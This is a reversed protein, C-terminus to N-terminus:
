SSCCFAGAEFSNFIDFLPKLLGFVLKFACLSFTVVFGSRAKSEACYGVKFTLKGLLIFLARVVFFGGEGHEM